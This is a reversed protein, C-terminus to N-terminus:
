ISDYVLVMLPKGATKATQLATGLDDIWPLAESQQSCALPAPAGLLAVIVVLNRIMM